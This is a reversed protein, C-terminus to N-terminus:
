YEGDEDDEDEEDEEWDDDDYDEDSNVVYKSYDEDVEEEEDFGFLDLEDDLDEDDGYFQNGKGSKKYANMKPKKARGDVGETDGPKTEKKKVKVVTKKELGSPTFSAPFDSGKSEEDRDQKEDPRYNQVRKEGTQPRPNFERKPSAQGGGRDEAQKVVCPRGNFKYGDLEKIAVKAEEDDFMEVFAFGRPKGTEKDTAITAKRVKGYVEFAATLEENTVGFDLKAVFISTM